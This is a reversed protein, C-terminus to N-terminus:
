RNFALRMSRGGKSGLRRIKLWPSEYYWKTMLMWFWRRLLAYICHSEHNGGVRNKRKPPYGMSPTNELLSVRGSFSRDALVAHLGADEGLVCLSFGM